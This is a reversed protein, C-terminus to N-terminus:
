LVSQKLAAKCFAVFDTEILTYKHTHTAYWLGKREQLDLCVWREVIVRFLDCLVCLM